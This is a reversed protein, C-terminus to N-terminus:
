PDRGKNTMVTTDLVRQLDDMDHQQQMILNSKEKFEKILKHIDEFLARMNAVKEELEIRLNTITDATTADAVRTMLKDEEAVLMDALVEDITAHQARRKKAHLQARYSLPRPPTHSGDLNTDTDSNTTVYTDPPKVITKNKGL